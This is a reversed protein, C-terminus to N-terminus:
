ELEYSDERILTDIHLFSASFSERIISANMSLAFTTDNQYSRQRALNAGFWEV